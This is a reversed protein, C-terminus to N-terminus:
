AAKVKSQSDLKVISDDDNALHLQFMARGQNMNASGFVKLAVNEGILGQIKSLLGGDIQAKSLMAEMVETQTGYATERVVNVGVFHMAFPENTKKSVGRFERFGALEGIIFMGNTVNNM